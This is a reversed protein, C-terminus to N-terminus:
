TSTNGVIPNHINKIRFIDNFSYIRHVDSEASKRLYIQGAKCWLYNYKYLTKINKAERYLRSQFASLKHMIYIRQVPHNIPLPVDLDATSLSKHKRTQTLINNKLQTSNLKVIFFDKQLLKSNNQNATASMIKKHIAEVSVIDDSSLNVGFKKIVCIILSRIDEHNSPLGSIVISSINQQQIPKDVDAELQHLKSAQKLLQEELLCMRSKIEDNEFKLSAVCTKM